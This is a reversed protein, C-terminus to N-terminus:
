VFYRKVRALFVRVRLFWYKGRQYVKYGKVEWFGLRGMRHMEDLNQQFGSEMAELNASLGSEGFTRKGGGAFVVEEDLLAMAHNLSIKLWYNVDEAYCQGEKFFGTSELVKRRFIVTSPMAENRLLIKRFTIKALKGKVTYPFRIKQGTRKGALFDLAMAADTLYELQIATKQELWVDDADLLAFFDGTAERMGANRASSVGRNEQVIYRFPIEPHEKKFALVERESDDTSGDNVVVVEFEVGEVSQCVISELSKRVTSEANYVPLIVSIKVM